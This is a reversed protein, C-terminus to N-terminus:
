RRRALQLPRLGLETLPVSIEFLFKGYVNIHEYRTPSLHTLDADLVPYGQARLHELGDAHSPIGCSSRM